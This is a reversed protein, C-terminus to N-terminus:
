SKIFPEIATLPFKQLAVAEDRAGVNDFMFLAYGGWGGGCYKCCLSGPLHELHPLASMGEDLQVAYSARVAACLGEFSQSWVADRALAGATEIADYDRRGDATAPTDHVVGTHMVAMRGKLLGGNTKIELTPRPGSMWVCLGTESIIAPDQWGVGLQNVESDVGDKGQLLAYAGSGGLGGGREAWWGGDQLSVFPSIACNVIFAGPRAFRPVDLWGGAFDVRLPVELPARISCVIDTTSIPAFLPPTKPLVIYEAGIERCLEVKLTAYKDDETVVLLNPRLKLFHPKFDLGIEESEGILVEDICDLEELIAKKHEDPLSSRRRKHNWLVASSAFCVVLRTGLARAEKFFQIHGAHIIDYCGSVFVTSM